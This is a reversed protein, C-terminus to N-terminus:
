AAEGEVEGGGWLSEQGSFTWGLMFTGTDTVETLRSAVGRVILEERAGLIPHTPPCPSIANSSALRM